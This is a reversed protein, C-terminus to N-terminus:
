FSNKEHKHERCALFIFILIFLSCFCLLYFINNERFKNFFVRLYQIFRIDISDIISHYYSLSSPQLPASIRSLICVEYRSGQFIGPSYWITRRLHSYRHFQKPISVQSFNIKSCIAETAWVTSLKKKSRIAQATRVSLLKKLRIAWAM